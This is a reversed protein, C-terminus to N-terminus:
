CLNGSSRLVKDILPYDDTRFYVLRSGCDSFLVKVVPQLDVRKTLCSSPENEICEGSFCWAKSNILVIHLIPSRTNLDKVITHFSIEDRASELLLRM